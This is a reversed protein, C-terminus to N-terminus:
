KYLNSLICLKENFLTLKEMNDEAFIIIFEQNLKDIENFEANLYLLRLNEMISQALKNKTQIIKYAELIEDRITSMEKDLIFAADASANLRKQLRLPINNNYKYRLSHEITAWFNMTLTRIQIECPVELLGELTFLKYLGIIHYSRYGSEKTNNIYDKEHLVKLDFNDRTKILSVITKIDEVFRCIIRIGAVDEINSFIKDYTINKRSSKEIISGIDKVRGTVDEIPSHLNQIEYEQKLGLFKCTLEKVTQEYPILEKKWDFIQM